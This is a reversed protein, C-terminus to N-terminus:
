YGVRVVDVKRRRKGCEKAKARKCAEHQQQIKKRKGIALTKMIINKLENQLRSQRLTCASKKGVTVIKEYKTTKKRM